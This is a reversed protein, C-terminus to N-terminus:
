LERIKINRFWCAFDNHDQLGIYGEKAPGDKFGAWDKFKSNAVLENWQPTWLTYEVVKVGNQTHTAHGDKVRIVVTNWEGSPKANSPLAPVMDYLSGALHNTLKNDGANWNDLIQIEPAAAFIAQGPTEVVYYFIGSNGGKGIKWDISLEFNKFKKAAYIIDASPTRPANPDRPPRDARAPIMMADDDIKWIVPMATGNYQRWGETSKGDFLLTWGEKKEKATLTNPKQAALQFTCAAVLIMSLLIRKKM